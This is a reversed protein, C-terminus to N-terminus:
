EEGSASPLGAFMVRRIAPLLDSTMAGKAILDDAGAALAAERYIRKAWLTLMIIRVHPLLQKLQPILALGTTGPMSMDLCVLEPKVERAQHLAEEAGTAIGRVIVESAGNEELFMKEIHLFSRNDDVLLVSVREDVRDHSKDPKDYPVAKTPNNGGTPIEAMAFVSGGHAHRALQTKGLAEETSKQSLPDWRNLLGSLLDTQVGVREDSAASAYRGKASCDM